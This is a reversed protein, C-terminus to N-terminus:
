CNQFAPQREAETMANCTHVVIGLASHKENGKLNDVNKCAFFISSEAVHKYYHM